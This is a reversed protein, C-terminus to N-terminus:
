PSEPPGSWLTISSPLIFCIPIVEKPNANPHSSPRCAANVRVLLEKNGYGIKM